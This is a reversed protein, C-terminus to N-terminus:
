NSMGLLKYLLKDEVISMQIAPLLNNDQYYKMVTQPNQKNMMAEYYLIQEVEEKTVNIQEKKALADVIFTAKVSNTADESVEARLELLKETNGRYSELVEPTMEKARNNIQVDIEQEVINQPLDFNCHALLAELTKQKLEDQYVQALKENKIQDALLEKLSEVTADEKFMLEQATKDNLEKAVKTKITHLTVTFTTEKGALNPAQYDAPFTVVIDKTEGANMGVLQPEFGSIFQNSGIQLDFFEASGGEFEVGDLKGVFDIVALDGNELARPEAIAEFTGQKTLIEEVKADVESAEVTPMDYTPIVSEYGDLVVEPRTSIVVEMEINGDVEDFKTVDPEGLVDSEKLGLEKYSQAMADRFLEGKADEVLKEGYMKEIVSVPTKGKRFGDVKATKSLQLAIKKVKSDIDAKLITANATANATNTKVVSITVVIRKLYYNAIRDLNRYFYIKDIPNLM